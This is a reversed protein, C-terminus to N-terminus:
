WTIVRAAAFVLEVLRDSDIAAGDLEIRDDVLRVVTDGDSIIPVADGRVLHLTTM